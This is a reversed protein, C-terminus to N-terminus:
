CLYVLSNPIPCFMYILRLVIVDANCQPQSSLLIIDFFALCQKQLQIM